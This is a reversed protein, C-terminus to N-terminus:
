WGWWNYQIALAPSSVFSSYRRGVFPTTTTLLFSRSTCTVLSSSELPSSFCCCCRLLFGKPTLYKHDVKIVESIGYMDVCSSFLYDIASVMAGEVGKQGARWGGGATMLVRCCYLRLRDQYVMWWWNGFSCVFSHHYLIRTEAFKNEIAIGNLYNLRSSSCFFFYFFYGFDAM